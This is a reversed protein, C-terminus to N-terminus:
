LQEQKRGFFEQPDILHENFFFVDNHAFTKETQASVHTPPAILTSPTNLAARIAETVRMWTEEREVNRMKELPILPKNVFQFTALPTHDYRCPKLLVPLITIGEAASASLLPPLENLAIFDSALFDASVLLVAVKTTQLAHEIEPRWKEGPPIKTDDWLDVKKNRVEPALHVRLRELFKADTHSYCIFVRSRAAPSSAM